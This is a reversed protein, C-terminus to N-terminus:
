RVLRTAQSLIEFPVQIGCQQASKLNIVLEPKRPTAVPLHEPFVGDLVQAAMDALLEGQELPSVEMVLLVGREAMGPIISISPLKKELALDLIAQNKEGARAFLLGNAGSAVVEHMVAAPARGQTPILVVDLGRRGAADKFVSLLKKDVVDGDLIVALKLTSTLDRLLRFLTQLPANGRVGTALQNDRKNTTVLGIAEPEITDAFLVPVQFTEAKAALAASTGYALILDAHLAVAKRASNRLSMYDDNPRQLYFRPAPRGNTIEAFKKLFSKHITALHSPGDPLIVAIVTEAARVGVPMALSQMVALLALLLFRCRLYRLM